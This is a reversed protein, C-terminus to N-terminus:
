TVRCGVVPHTCADHVLADYVNRAAARDAVKKIAIADAYTVALVFLVVICFDFTQRVSPVEM